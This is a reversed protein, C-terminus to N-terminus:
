RRPASPAGQVKLSERDNMARYGDPVEDPGVTIRVRAGTPEVLEPDPVDDVRIDGAGCILTARM